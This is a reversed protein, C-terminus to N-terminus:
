IQIVHLSIAAANHTNALWVLDFRIIQSLAVSGDPDHHRSQKWCSDSTESISGDSDDDVAITDQDALSSAKRLSGHMRIPWDEM